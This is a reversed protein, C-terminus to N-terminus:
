TDFRRRNYGAGHRKREHAASPEAVAEIPTPSSRADLGSVDIPVPFSAACAAQRRAGARWGSFRPVGFYDESQGRSRGARLNKRFGAAEDTFRRYFGPGGTAFAPPTPRYDSYDLLWDAGVGHVERFFDEDHM